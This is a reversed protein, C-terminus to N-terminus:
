LIRAKIASRRVLFTKQNERNIIADLILLDILNPKNQNKHIEKGYNEKWQNLQDLFDMPLKFLAEAVKSETELKQINAHESSVIKGLYEDARGLDRQSRPRVVPRIKGPNGVDPFSYLPPLRFSTGCQVFVLILLLSRLNM